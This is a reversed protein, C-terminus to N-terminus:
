ILRKDRVPRGERVGRGGRPQHLHGNAGEERPNAFTGSGIGNAAAPVLGYDMESDSADIEWGFLNGYFSRLRAGDKGAIEFWAM